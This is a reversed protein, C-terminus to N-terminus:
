IHILSLNYGDAMLFGLWYAKDETDIVEFYDKNILYKRHTKKVEINNVKLRNTITAVDVNFLKSIKSASLNDETYLRIVEEVDIEKRKGM